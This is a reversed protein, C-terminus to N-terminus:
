NILKALYIGRYQNYKPILLILQYSDSMSILELQELRKNWILHLRHSSGIPKSCIDLEVRM